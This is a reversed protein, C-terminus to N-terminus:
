LLGRGRDGPSPRDRCRDTFRSLLSGRARVWHMFWAVVALAVCFSVVLGIALVTWAHTNMALPAIATDAADQAHPRLTKLFDYGTAVLM